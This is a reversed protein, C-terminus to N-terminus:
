KSERPYLTISRRITLNSIQYYCLNALKLTQGKPHDREVISTTIKLNQKLKEIITLQEYMFSYINNQKLKEWGHMWNEQGSVINRIKQQKSLSLIFSKNLINFCLWYCGVDSYFLLSFLTGTGGQRCIKVNM